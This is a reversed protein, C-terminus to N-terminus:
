FSQMWLDLNWVNKELASIKRNLTDILLSKDTEADEDDQTDSLMQRAAMSSSSMTKGKEEVETCEEKKELDLKSQKSKLVHLRLTLVDIQSKQEGLEQQLMQNQDRLEKLEELEFKMEEEWEERVQGDHMPRHMFKWLFVPSSSHASAKTMRKEVEKEVTEFWYAMLEAGLGTPKSLKSKCEDGLDIQEADILDMDDASENACIGQLVRDSWKKLDRRVAYGPSAKQRGRSLNLEVLMRANISKKTQLM